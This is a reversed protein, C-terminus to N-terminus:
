AHDILSRVKEVLLASDYVPKELYGDAGSAELLRERDGSMAHATALLVPLHRPSKEKVMRCLQVGNIVEGNWESNTLSVDLLVLDLNGTAALNLIEPVDESITCSCGGARELAMRFFKAVLANDEVILVHKGQLTHPQSSV